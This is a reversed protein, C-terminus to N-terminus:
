ESEGAGGNLQNCLKLQKKTQEIMKQKQEQTLVEMKGTEPNKRRVTPKNTLVKLNNRHKECDKKLAEAPNAEKEANQEENQNAAKRERAAEQRQKELRKIAKDQSSSAPTHVRAKTADQGEPKESSYHTVGEDDVWKYYQEAAAAPVLSLMVLVAMARACTRIM